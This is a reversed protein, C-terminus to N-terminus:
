CILYIANNFAFTCSARSRGKIGLSGSLLVPRQFNWRLCFLVSQAHAHTSSSSVKTALLQPTTRPNPRRGQPGDTSNRTRDAANAVSTEQEEGEETRTNSAHERRPPCRAPSQAIPPVARAAEDVRERKSDPYDSASTPPCRRDSELLVNVIKREGNKACSFFNM